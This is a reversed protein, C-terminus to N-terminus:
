YMKHYKKNRKKEIVLVTFFLLVKIEVLYVKMQYHM